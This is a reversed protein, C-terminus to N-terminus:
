PFRQASSTGFRMKLVGNEQRLKENEDAQQKLQADRMEVLRYSTDLAHEVRTTHQLGAGQQSTLEEIRRNKQCLDEETKSLKESLAQPMKELQQVLESKRSLLNEKVILLEEKNQLQEAQKTVKEETAKAHEDKGKLQEENEALQDEMETCRAEMGGMDKLLSNAGKWAFHLLAPNETMPLAVETPLLPQQTAAVPTPQKQAPASVDTTTAGDHAATVNRAGGTSKLQTPHTEEVNRVNELAPSPPIYQRLRSAPSDRQEQNASKSPLATTSKMPQGLNALPKHQLEMAIFNDRDRDASKPHLANNPTSFWPASGGDTYSPLRKGKEGRFRLRDKRFRAKPTEPTAKLAPNSIGDDTTSTRGEDSDEDSVAGLRRRKRPPSPAAAPSTDSRDEEREDESIVRRPRKLLPHAAKPKKTSSSAM